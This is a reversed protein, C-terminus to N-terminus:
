QVTEDAPQLRIGARHHESAAGEEANLRVLDVLGADGAHELGRLYEGIQRQMFVDHDWGECLDVAGEAGIGPLRDGGPAVDDAPGVGHQLFYAQVLLAARM